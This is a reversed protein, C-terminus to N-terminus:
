TAHSRDFIQKYDSLTKFKFVVCAEKCRSWWPRLMHIDLEPHHIYAGKGETIKVSPYIGHACIDEFNQPIHKLGDSASTLPASTTRIHYDDVQQPM